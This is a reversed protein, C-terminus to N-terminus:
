TSCIQQRRKRRAAKITPETELNREDFWSQHIEWMRIESLVEGRRGRSTMGLSRVLSFGQQLPDVLHDCLFQFGECCSAATCYGATPLSSDFVLSYGIASRGQASMVSALMATQNM